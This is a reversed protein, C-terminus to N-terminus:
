LRLAFHGKVEFAIDGKRVKAVFWYDTAPMLNGNYTGNWGPGNYTLTKLLKGYRDFIYVITGTLTEVGTIHWTDFYGDGNPTVFKPTDIVVVEKSVESCGNLDIVTITHYGLSVNEFVNSEQPVNADLQYLYNGIGSITITINNPDSFDVTETIEITAAESETVEFVSTIACGFISTVTVAYSGIEDIEIEPSSQNTSWLYTDDPNNTNASVLLPLNELCIVQDPIAVQPKLFVITQFQTSSFCGTDMNQVRVYITQGSASEYNEPLANSGQFANEASTYFSLEFNNANQSGLIFTTQSEFDFDFFGDFDDDCAELADPQNAIPLPNIILDFDYTTWCGTSNNAIRIFLTDNTSNYTYDTNIANENAEADEESLFYSFTMGSTTESVVSNITSLDFSNTENECIVYSQFDNLAPPLNVSLNIPLTVYCNSITNNIKIYVTQPNSTNTYNEPDSIIEADTEAGEFSEHYTVVINDQRVDLIEIEVVSIDFPVLGDYDTDCQRLDSPTGVSPVQIISIEFTAVARCYTGDDIRAYIAQPNTSNTYNLPVPNLNNQADYQSEHFSVDLDQPSGAIIEDVKQSLDYTEVADNSIDDCLFVSTPANFIPLAGVLVVFSSTGFCGEDTISEVRVHITQPSSLNQYAVYKDIIDVRDIADQATEFYLVQKGTQDNLIDQDKLYFFFDAIANGDAECNEFDAIAEFVPLTNIDAYFSVVSFCSTTEDEVRVYIFQSISDYNEPTDIANSASLAEDYDTHFSFAIGTTDTTIEPIKSELDITYIGDQDDDCVILNSPTNAVPSNLVNITLPAIDFCNSLSSEVRVWVQQPNELNYYFPPLENDQAIADMETLYYSVSAGNVGAAVQTNFSDLAISTFGDTDNDCYNVDALGQINIPPVVDLVITTSTECEDDIVTVYLTKSNSVSYPLEKNLPNSGANLDEESEYFLIGYTEYGNTLYLEVQNLDFNEIGDESADDCLYFPITSFGTITIDAHLELPLIVFCGTTDDVIRIYVTQLGAVVNQYNNANAIPNNGTQAEALQAHFSVTVGTLGQLIEGIISSLDFAETGDGDQECANIHATSEPNVIPSDQVSIEVSTTNSCGTTADFVRIYLTENPNINTYPSYLPNQGSKADQLTYHYSVFLNPDGGTLQDNTNSLDIQTIGDPLGDDCVTIATPPNAEPLPNVVLNFSTFVICGNLADISRVYITQPSATNQYPSPLPNLNNEADQQSLHYTLLYTSPTLANLVEADKSDLEFSEIANNSSDDCLIYDSIPALSAESNLTVLVSDQIVCSTENLQISIQVQYNGSANAQLSPNTEGAIPMGNLFWEYTALSNEIDANLQYFNACTVIDPGLDASPQFSNSEIFVASDYFKDGQDAIVLKIRYKVNPQVAATAALITTRGNYNTDGLNYGAFYEPNSAPCFEVIENHITNTNVPINTGPILAINTYPQSSGVPRILFAFGDSYSCPNADLYEESALLYNFEIQNAATTFDFEVSTANMVDSIGLATELDPDTGWNDDGENLPNTNLVNGASSITGTSLIIGSQFPFDSSARNFSGYSDIGSAQGNVTSSINTIEVCGQGLNQQILAELPISADTTIQQAFVLYCSGLLILFLVSDRM